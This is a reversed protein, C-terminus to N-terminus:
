KNVEGLFQTKFNKHWHRYAYVVDQTKEDVGIPRMVGAFYAYPNRPHSPDNCKNRM